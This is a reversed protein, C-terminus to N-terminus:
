VGAGHARSERADPNASNISAASRGFLAIPQSRDAALKPQEGTLDAPHVAGSALKLSGVLDLSVQV